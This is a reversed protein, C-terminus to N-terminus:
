SPYPHVTFVKGPTSENPVRQIIPPPPRCFFSVQVLPLWPMKKTVIGSGAASATSSAPLKARSLRLRLALFHLQAQGPSDSATFLM